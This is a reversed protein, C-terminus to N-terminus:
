NLTNYTAHSRFLSLSVSLRESQNKESRKRPAKTKIERKCIFNMAKARNKPALPKEKRMKSTEFASQAALCTNHVRERRPGSSFPFNCLLVVAEVSFWNLHCFAVSKKRRMRRQTQTHTHADLLM